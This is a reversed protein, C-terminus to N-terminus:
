VMNARSIRNKILLIEKLINILKLRDVNTKACYKNDTLKAPNCCVVVVDFTLGFMSISFMFYLKHCEMNCVGFYTYAWYLNYYFPSKEMVYIAHMCGHSILFPLFLYVFIPFSFLLSLSPSFINLVGYWVMWYIELGENIDFSPMFGFLQM